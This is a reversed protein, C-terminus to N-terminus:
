LDEAGDEPLEEFLNGPEVYLRWPGWTDRADGGSSHAAKHASKTLLVYNGAGSKGGKDGSDYGGNIRGAYLPVQHHCDYGKVAGSKKADAHVSGPYMEKWEGPTLVSAHEKIWATMRADSRRDKEVVIRWRWPATTSSKVLIRNGKIKSSEIWKRYKANDPEDILPYRRDRYWAEAADQLYQVKKRDLLLPAQASRPLKEVEKMYAKIDYDLSKLDTALQKARSWELSAGGSEGAEMKLAADLRKALADREKTLDAALAGTAALLALVALLRSLLLAPRM